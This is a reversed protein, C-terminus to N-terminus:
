VTDADGRRQGQPVEHELRANVSRPEPVSFVFRRETM